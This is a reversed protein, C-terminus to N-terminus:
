SDQHLGPLRTSIEYKEENPLNTEDLLRCVENYTTGASLYRFGDQRTVAMDMWDKPSCRSRQNYNGLDNFYCDETLRRQPLHYGIEPYTMPIFPWYAPRFWPRIDDPEAECLEETPIPWCNWPGSDLEADDPASVMECSAPTWAYPEDAGGSYHSGCSPCSPISGATKDAALNGEIGEFIKLIEDRIDM